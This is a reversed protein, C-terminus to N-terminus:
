KKIEAYQKDIGDRIVQAKTKNTKVCIYNLKNEINEDLRVKFTRDKPTDTLKTGKAIGLFDGRKKTPVGNNYHAWLSFDLM